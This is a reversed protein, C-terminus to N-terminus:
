RTLVGALVLSVDNVFPGLAPISDALLWMRGQLRSALNILKLYVEVTLRVMNGTGSGHIDSVSIHLMLMNLIPLLTRLRQTRSNYRFVNSSRKGNSSRGSTPCVQAQRLRQSSYHIKPNIEKQPSSNTTILFDVSIM